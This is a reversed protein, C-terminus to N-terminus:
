LEIFNEVLLFITRPPKSRSFRPLNPSTRIKSLTELFLFSLESEDHTKARALFANRQSAAISRGGELPRM